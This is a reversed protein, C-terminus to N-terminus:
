ADKLARVLKRLFDENVTNIVVASLIADTTASFPFEVTNGDEDVWKTAKVGSPEAINGVGDKVTYIAVDEGSDNRFTVTHDLSKSFPTVTDAGDKFYGYNGDADIGLKFPLADDIIQNNGNIVDLSVNEDASPLTLGLNETTTAM